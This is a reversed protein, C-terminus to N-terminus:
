LYLKIFSADKTIDLSKIELNVFRKCSLAKSDGKADYYVYAGLNEALVLAADNGSPLM